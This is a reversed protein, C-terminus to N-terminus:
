RVDGGRQPALADRVAAVLGARPVERQGLRAALWEERSAENEFSPETMQKVTVAGRAFEDSGAIVVVPLRAKDAHKVQKGFSGPPGAFLEVRLGAARLEACMAGYEAMRTREMTTVLV